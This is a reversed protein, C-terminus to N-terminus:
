SNPTTENKEGEAIFADAMKYAWKAVNGHENLIEGLTHCTLGSSLAQGAFYDRLTMGRDVTTSGTMHPFAYGGKKM